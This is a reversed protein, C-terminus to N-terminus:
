VVFGGVTKNCTEHALSAENWSFRQPRVRNLGLQPDDAAVAGVGPLGARQDVHQDPWVVDDVIGVGFKLWFHHFLGKGPRRREIAKAARFVGLELGQEPAMQVKVQAFVHWDPHLCVM